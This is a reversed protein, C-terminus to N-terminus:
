FAGSSTYSLCFLHAIEDSLQCIQNIIKEADDGTMWIELLWSPQGSEPGIVAEGSKVRCAIKVVGSEDRFRELFSFDDGITGSRVANTTMYAFCPKKIIKALPSFDLGLSIRLQAECLDIQNVRRHMECIPGGGM